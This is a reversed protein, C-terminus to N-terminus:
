RITTCTYFYALVDSIDRQASTFTYEIYDVSSEGTGIFDFRLSAIGKAALRSALYVYGNGAENKDSGTGHCLIVVPCDRQQPLTLVAPIQYQHTSSEIKVKNITFTM